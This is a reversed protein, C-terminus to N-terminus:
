GDDGEQPEEGGPEAIVLALEQIAGSCAYARQRSLEAQELHEVRLAELRKIKLEIESKTMM